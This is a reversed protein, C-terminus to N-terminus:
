KTCFITNIVPFSKLIGNINDEIENMTSDNFNSKRTFTIDYPAFTILFKNEHKKLASEKGRSYTLDLTIVVKDVNKLYGDEIAKEFTQYNDCNMRQSYSGRGVIMVTFDTDYNKKFSYEKYDYRLKENKLEDEKILGLLYQFLTDCYQVLYSISKIDPISNSYDYENNINMEKEESVENM